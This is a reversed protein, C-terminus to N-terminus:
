KSNAKRYTKGPTLKVTRTVGPQSEDKVQKVDTSTHIVRERNLKRPTNRMALWKEREMGM